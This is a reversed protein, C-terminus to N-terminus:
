EGGCIEPYDEIARFQAAYKSWNTAIKYGAVLKSPVYIYGTGNEIKSGTFISGGTLSCLDTETRIILTELSTCQYFGNQRIAQLVHFDAKKLGKFQRLGNYPVETLALFVMSELATCEYFAYQSITALSPLELSVIPVGSFAYSGLTTLTPNSYETLQRTLLALELESSGGSGTAKDKLTEQLNEIL